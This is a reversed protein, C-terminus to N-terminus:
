QRSINANKVLLLNAELDERFFRGFAELNM